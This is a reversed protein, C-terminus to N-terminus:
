AVPSNAAIAATQPASSTSIAISSVAGSRRRLM